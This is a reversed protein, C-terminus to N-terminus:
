LLHESMQRCSAASVEIEGSQDDGSDNDMDRTSIFIDDATQAFFTVSSFGSTNCSTNCCFTNAATLRVECAKLGLVRNRGDSGRMMEEDYAPVLM